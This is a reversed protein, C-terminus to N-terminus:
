WLHSRTFSFLLSLQDQGAVAADLYIGGQENNLLALAIPVSTTSDSSSLRGIIYAAKNRFFLSRAFEIKYRTDRSAPAFYQKLRKGAANIRAELDVYPLQFRFYNVTSHM